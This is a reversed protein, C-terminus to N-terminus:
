VREERAQPKLRRLGFGVNSKVDLHPFLAYDQFMMGVHRDEPPIRQDASTMLEGDITITGQEIPEFGAISRLVTTKGSGSAGLLCGIQGSELSFSVGNVAAKLRGKIPYSVRIDNVELKGSM